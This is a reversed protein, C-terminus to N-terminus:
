ALKAAEPAPVVEVPAAPSTCVGRLLGDGLHPVPAWPGAQDDYRSRMAIEFDRRAQRDQLSAAAMAKDRALLAKKAIIPIGTRTKRARADEEAWAAFVAAEHSPASTVLLRRFGGGAWEQRVDVPQRGHQRCWNGALRWAVSMTDARFLIREDLIM